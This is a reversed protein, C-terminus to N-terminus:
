PTNYKLRYREVIGRIPHLLWAVVKEEAALRRREREQEVAVPALRNEIEVSGDAFVRALRDIGESILYRPDGKGRYLGQYRLEIQSVAYRYKEKATMLADNEARLSALRRAIRARQVTGVSAWALAAIFLMGLIKAAHHWQGTTALEGAVGAKEAQLERVDAELKAVARQREELQREIGLKQEALRARDAELSAVERAFADPVKISQGVGLHNADRIDNVDLITQLPVRFTRAVDSLSEGPRLLYLFFPERTALPEASVSPRVALLSLSIAIWVALRLPKM